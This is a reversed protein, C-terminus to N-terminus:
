PEVPQWTEGGDSTRLRRGSRARVEGSRSDTFLISFADSLGTEVPADWTRGQDRSHAVRGDPFLVWLHRGSVSFNVVRPSSPIAVTEWQRSNSSAVLLHGSSTLAFRRAAASLEKSFPAVLEAQRAQTRMRTLPVAAAAAGAAAERPAAESPRAMFLSPAIAREQVAGAAEAEGPKAQAAGEARQQVMAKARAQRPPLEEKKPPAGGIGAGVGLNSAPPPALAPAAPPAAQQTVGGAPIGAQRQSQVQDKEATRPASGVVGGLVGGVVGGPASSSMESRQTGARGPRLAETEKQAELRDSAPANRRESLTESPKAPATGGSPEPAFTSERAEKGTTPAESKAVAPPAPPAIPPPLAQVSTGKPSPSVPQLSTGTIRAREHYIFSGVLAVGALAPIAWRWRFAQARAAGSAAVAVARSQAASEQPALRVLRVVATQCAACGALHLELRERAAALLNGEAYAALLEPDGCPAETPVSPCSHRDLSPGRRRRLLEELSTDDDAVRM